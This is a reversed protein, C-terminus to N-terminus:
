RRQVKDAATRMADRAGKEFWDALEEASVAFAFTPSYIVGLLVLFKHLKSNTNSKRWINWRRIHRITKKM